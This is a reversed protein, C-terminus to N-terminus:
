VSLHDNPDDISRAILCSGKEQVNHTIEVFPHMMSLQREKERAASFKGAAKDQAAAVVEAAKEKMEEVKEALM